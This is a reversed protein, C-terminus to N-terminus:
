ETVVRNRGGDKAKYMARDARSILQEMTDDQIWSSVGFSATVAFGEDFRLRSIEVRLLEALKAASERDTEPCFVIFEEGGWRGALDTQRTHNQLIGALKILVEDGTPHGYQDNVQKFHDVDMLIASLQTGYRKIREVEHEMSKEIHRRNYLETLSDTTSLKKLAKHSAALQRNLSTLKWNWFLVLIFVVLAIAGYEWVKSYDFEHQFKVTVWKNYVADIKNRSISRVLKSMISHLMKDSKNVGIRYEMRIKTEGAVKLNTLGLRRIQYTAIPLSILLADMKGSSLRYLAAEIDETLFLDVNRYGSELIKLIGPDKVIGVRKGGLDELGSIFPLKEQSIIAITDTLYASTFDMTKIREPTSKIMPLIDCDGSRLKELSDLINNAKVMSFNIQLQESFIECFDALMGSPVDGRITEFPLRGQVACYRIEGKEDLYRREDPTLGVDEKGISRGSRSFWKSQLSTMEQPSISDLARNLLNFLVPNEKLVAFHMSSTEQLIDNEIWGSLKLDYFGFKKIFYQIIGEQEVTASVKGQDIYELSQRTSGVEIIHIKPYHTQFFEISSWGAPLAIIKGELDELTHIDTTDNRMIIVNKSHYYPTSFLARKKREPTESLSHIVDIEGSFFMEVLEDWTYGNIYEFQVGIRHALLNMLDIGFGAPEGSITFDFPPWDFENTVRISPHAQIYAIEEPNLPITNESASCPIIIGHFYFASFFILPYIVWSIIFRFLTKM